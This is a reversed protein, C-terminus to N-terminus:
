LVIINNKTKIILYPIYRIPAGFQVQDNFFDQVKNVFFKSFKENASSYPLGMTFLKREKFLWEPKITEETEREFDHITQDVFNSPFCFKSLKKDSRPIERNFNSAIPKARNLKGSIANCM